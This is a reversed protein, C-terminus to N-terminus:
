VECQRPISGSVEAGSTTPIVLGLDGISPVDPNLTDSGMAARRLAQLTHPQEPLALLRGLTVDDRLAPIVELDQVHRGRLPPVIRLLADPTYRRNGCRRGAVRHRGGWGSPVCGSSQLFM